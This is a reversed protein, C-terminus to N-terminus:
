EHLDVGELLFAEQVTQVSIGLHEMAKDLTMVRGVTNVTVPNGMPKFGLAVLHAQLKPEIQLIDYITDSIKITKM